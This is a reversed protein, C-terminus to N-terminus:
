ETIQSFVLIEGYPETRTFTGDKKRQYRQKTGDELTIILFDDQFTYTGDYSHESSRAPIKDITGDPNVYMAPYSPMYMEEKIKVDKDSVFDLTHTITMTGADAVFMEQVAKWQTNKLVPKKCMASISSLFLLGVILVLSHQWKIESMHM